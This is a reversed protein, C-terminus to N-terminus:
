RLDVSIIKRRRDLRRTPNGSSDTEVVVGEKGLDSEEGENSFSVVVDGGAKTAGSSQLDIYRLEPGSPTNVRINRFEIRYRVQSGQSSIKKVAVVGPTNKGRIGYIGSGITLGRRSEGYILSWKGSPYTASDSYTLVEIYNEEGNVMVEGNDLNFEVQNSTGTGGNARELILSQLKIIKDELTNAEAEAQRKEVLPVGWVYASAVGGVIVGTILVATVAQTQGKVFVKQTM